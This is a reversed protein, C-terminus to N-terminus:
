VTYLLCTMMFSCVYDPQLKPRFELKALCDLCCPWSSSLTGQDRHRYTLINQVDFEQVYRKQGKQKRLFLSEYYTIPSNRSYFDSKVALSNGIHKFLTHKRETYKLIDVGQDLCKTNRKATPKIVWSLKFKTYEYGNSDTIIMFSSHVRNNHYVGFFGFLNESM